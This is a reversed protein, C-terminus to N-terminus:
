KKINDEKFMWKMILKEHMGFDEWLFFSRIGNIWEHKM